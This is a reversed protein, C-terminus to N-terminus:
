NDRNERRRRLMEAKEARLLLPNVGMVISEGIQVRAYFEATKRSGVEAFDTYGDGFEFEVGYVGSELQVVNTKTVKHTNAM